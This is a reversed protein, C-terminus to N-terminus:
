SVSRAVNTVCVSTKRDEASYSLGKKIKSLPTKLLQTFFQKIDVKQGYSVRMDRLTDSMRVGLIDSLNSHWVRFSSNQLFSDLKSIHVTTMGIKEAVNCNNHSDDILVSKALDIQNDKAFKQWGDNGEAKTRFNNEVIGSIRVPQGNLLIEKCKSTRDKIMNKKIEASSCNEIVRLWAASAIERLGDTRIIIDAMSNLRSAFEKMSPDYRILNYNLKLSLNHCYKNFAEDTGCFDKAFKFLANPGGMKKLKPLDFLLQRKSKIKALEHLSHYALFIYFRKNSFSNVVGDIDLIVAGKTQQNEKM